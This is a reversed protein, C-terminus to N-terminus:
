SCNHEISIGNICRIMRLKKQHRSLRPNGIIEQIGPYKEIINVQEPTLSKMNKHIKIADKPNNVLIGSDDENPKRVRITVGNVTVPLGSDLQSVIESENQLPTLPKEM